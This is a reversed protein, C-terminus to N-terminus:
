KMEIEIVDHSRKVHFRIERMFTVSSFISHSGLHSKVVVGISIKELFFTGTSQARTICLVCYVICLVCYVIVDVVPPSSSGGGKLIYM